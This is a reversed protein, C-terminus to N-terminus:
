PTGGDASPAIDNSAPLDNLPAPGFMADTEPPLGLLEDISLPLVSQSSLVEGRLWARPVAMGSVQKQPLKPYDPTLLLSWSYSVPSDGNRRVEFSTLRTSLRTERVMGSESTWMMLWSGQRPDPGIATATLVGDGHHVLLVLTTDSATLADGAAIDGPFRDLEAVSQRVTDRILTSIRVANASTEYHEQQVVTEDTLMAYLQQVVGIVVVFMACVLLLEILTFGAKSDTRLRSM